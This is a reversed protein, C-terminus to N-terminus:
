RILTTTGKLEYVKGAYDIAKVMWVFTGTQQKQGRITGDWGLGTNNTSFILQGWRNYVRFYDLQRIGIYTPRLIDNKGDNNPTFGTPVYVASGKFVTIKV